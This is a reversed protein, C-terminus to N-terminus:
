QLQDALFREHDPHVVFGIGHDHPSRPFFLGM